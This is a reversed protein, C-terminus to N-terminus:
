SSRPAWQARGHKTIKNINQLKELLQMIIKIIDENVNAQNLSERLKSLNVNDYASALDKRFGTQMDGFFKENELKHEIRNKIMSEFLKCICPALVLPRYSDYKNPDKDRKLTPIVTQTKWEEPVNMNGRLISNYFHVLKIIMNEPLKKIMSYSIQDTGPATEKKKELEVILEEVTFLPSQEQNTDVIRNNIEPIYPPTLSNLLDAIWNENETAHRNEGATSKQEGKICDRTTQIARQMRRGVLM